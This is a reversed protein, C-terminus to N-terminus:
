GYSMKRIDDGMDETKMSRVYKSTMNISTHGMMKMINFSNINKEDLKCAFTHRFKHLYFKVGSKKILGNGVM